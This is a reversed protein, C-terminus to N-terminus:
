SILDLQMAKAVAAARSSVGLKEYINSFHTKVTAPSLVLERAIEPGSLGRASLRLVESERPTLWTFPPPAEGDSSYLEDEAWGVPAFAGLHLGPLANAMAWYVVELQSGDLGAVPYAGTVSGTEVLQEWIEELTELM